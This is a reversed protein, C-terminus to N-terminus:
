APFMTPLPGRHYGLPDVVRETGPRWYRCGRDCLASLQGPRVRALPTLLPEGWMNPQILTDGAPLERVIQQVADFPMEGIAAAKADEDDSGHVLCMPCKLNCRGSIDMLVREPYEPVPKKLEEATEL